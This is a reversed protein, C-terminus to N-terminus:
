AKSGAGPMLSSFVYTLSNVVKTGRVLEAFPDDGADHDPGFAVAQNVRVDTLTM